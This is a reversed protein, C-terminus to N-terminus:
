ESLAFGVQPSTGVFYGESNIGANNGDWEYRTDSWGGAGFDLMDVARDVEDTFYLARCIGGELYAEVYGISVEGFLNALRTALIDEANGLDPIPSGARGTGTGSWRAPGAEVFVDTDDITLTWEGDTIKIQMETTSTRSAFMGYQQTNAETLFNNIAKQLDSATSNVSAVHAQITYGLMTPILIAALVGIIAVVVILEVMTFGRNKSLRGRKM